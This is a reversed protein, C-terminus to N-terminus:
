YGKATVLCTVLTGTTGTNHMAITAATTTPLPSALEPIAAQQAGTTQSNAGSCNQGTVETCATPFAIPFTWTTGANSGAGPDALQIYAWQEIRGDPLKRYGSSGVTGAAATPSPLTISASGSHTFQGLQAAGLVPASGALVRWYTLSNDLILTVFDGPSPLTLIGTSTSNADIISNGNPNISVVGTENVLSVAYGAAIGSNPLTFTLTGDGLLVKGADSAVLAYNATKVEVGGAGAASALVIDWVSVGDGSIWLPSGPSVTASTAGGPADTDSGADQVTVTNTSTDTRVFIFELPLASASAVAPLTLTIPGAAANVMVLGANDAVLTANSSIAMRNAACIRKIAQLQQNVLAKNPTIGAGVVVNRIEEVLTHLFWADVTTPPISPPSGDTYYGETGVAPMPPPTASASASDPRFVM